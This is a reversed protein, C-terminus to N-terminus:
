SHRDLVPRQVDFPLRRALAEFEVSVVQNDRCVHKVGGAIQVLSQAVAPLQERGAALQDGQLVHAPAAPLVDGEAQQVPPPPERVIVPRVM